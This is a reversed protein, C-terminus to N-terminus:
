EVVNGFRRIALFGFAQLAASLALMVLAAQDSLLRATFGPALLEAFLAAGAPLAVVLLGTFRAQTTAARADEAVREHEATADAYRRLLTALDGGAIQQSLLASCFVDVRQSRLRARLGALAESTPIGLSIDAAMRAMEAAPPGDLSAAAAALAGRVSRGAALADAVATAIEPMHREVARRYRGRRSTVAWGAAAPGAVAVVALPGPGAIFLAAALLGGTGVIALRRRELESPTYGESGARRLPEVSGVLWSALAPTALVAERVGVALMGGAAAGLLVPGLSNV